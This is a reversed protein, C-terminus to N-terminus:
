DTFSGAARESFRKPANLCFRSLTSNIVANREREFYAEILGNVLEYDGPLALEL